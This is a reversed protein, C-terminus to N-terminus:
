NYSPCQMNPKSPPFAQLVSNSKLLIFQRKLLPFITRGASPFYGLKLKCQLLQKRLLLLTNLPDM